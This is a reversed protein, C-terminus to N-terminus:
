NVFHTSASDKAVIYDSEQPLDHHTSIAYGPDDGFFVPSLEVGVMVLQHLSSPMFALYEDWPCGLGVYLDLRGM